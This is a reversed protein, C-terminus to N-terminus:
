PFEDEPDDLPFNPMLLMQDKRPPSYSDMLGFNWMIGRFSGLFLFPDRKTLDLQQWMAQLIKQKGDPHMRYKRFLEHIGWQHLYMDHRPTECEDGQCEWAVRFKAEIFDLPKSPEKDFLTLQALVEKEREYHLEREYEERPEVDCDLITKPRVIGLSIGEEKQRRRLEGVSKCFHPSRELYGRRETHNKVEDGLVITHFKIRYSEPRPDGEDRQVQAEIIQWSKFAQNGELYRHPIPYLRIMEFADYFMAGTCATERYKRSYAPYTKGIVLMRRTVWPESAM